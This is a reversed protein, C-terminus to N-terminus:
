KLSVDQQMYELMEKLMESTLNSYVNQQQSLSSSQQENPQIPIIPTIEFPYISKGISLTSTTIITSSNNTNNMNNNSANNLSNLSAVNLTLDNSNVFNNNTSNSNNNNSNSGSSNNSNGSFVKQAEANLLDIGMSTTVTTSSHFTDFGQILKQFMLEEVHTKNSNLIQYWILFLRTGSFKISKTNGIHILKQIIRGISRVQWRLHLREPQLLLIKKFLFFFFIFYFGGIILFSFIATVVLFVFLVIDLEDKNQKNLRHKINAEVNIFSEYFIFFIQSYNQDFFQKLEAVNDTSEIYTKLYRLRSTLDKKTDLVKAASKKRNLEDVQSTTTKPKRTFM